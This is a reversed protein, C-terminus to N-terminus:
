EELKRAAAIREARRSSAIEILEPDRAAALRQKRDERYELEDAVIRGLALLDDSQISGSAVLSKRQPIAGSAVLSMQTTGIMGFSARPTNFGGSNVTLVGVLEFQGNAMRRWDGSLSSARLIKVQADTATERILGSFWIGHADEGTVIDAIGFGTNDYHATAAAAALRDGAHGTGQTIVGTSVVGGDTEVIGVRFHAYDAASRPPVTCVNDIAIHCAGFAAIHGYVHRGDVTVPTLKDLLPNAFYDMAPLGKASSAVLSFAPARDASSHKGTETGPWTGTAEKHLNACTGALFAPNVYKALQNRCRNFDGPAGWRIKAAGEGRTWYTRLRQTERPNKLWGPGDQTGPAFASALIAYAEEVADIDQDLSKELRSLADLQQASLENNDTVADGEGAAGGDGAKPASQDEFDPGLAIFAEDFAPIGVLTAGRIRGATFKTVANGGGFLMEMLDGDGDEDTEDMELEYESTDVDISVGGLSGFRIGDIAMHAEPVALNFRGRARQENGELWIEDITGVSVAQAHGEASVRQFGLQMPFSAYSLSGAAFMRKDGTEVGEVVLVGHWPTETDDDVLDENEIEEDTLERSEDVHIGDGEEELDAAFSTSKAGMTPGGTIALLCRCNLYYEPPGVPEGPYSMKRDGVQFSGHIPVTQGAAERHLPRVANDEMDIWTKELGGGQISADNTADNVAFVGVWNAIRDVEGDTPPDHPESTKQLSERLERQFSELPASGDGDPAHREFTELWLVSAGEIIDSYWAGDSYQALSQAVIERIEDTFDVLRKSREAAFAAFQEPIM